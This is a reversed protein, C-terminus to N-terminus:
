DMRKNIEWPSGNEFHWHWELYYLLISSLLGIEQYQHSHLPLTPSLHDDIQERLRLFYLLFRVPHNRGSRFWRLIWIRTLRTVPNMDGLCLPQLLLYSIRHRM